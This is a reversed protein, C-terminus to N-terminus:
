IWLSVNYILALYQRKKSIIENWAKKLCVFGGQSVLNNDNKWKLLHKQKEQFYWIGTEDIYLFKILM